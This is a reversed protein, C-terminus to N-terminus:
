VAENYKRRSLVLLKERLEDITMARGGKTRGERDSGSAARAERNFGATRLLEEESFGAALAENREHYAAAISALIRERVGGFDWNEFGHPCSM